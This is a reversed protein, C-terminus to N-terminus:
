FCTAGSSHKQRYLRGEEVSFVVDVVSSEIVVPDHSAILVTKGAMKLQVVIEIFEESLVKDLHATPEDAIIISPDNILARAIATRQTEGGSIQRVPFKARHELHLDAMLLQARVRQQKPPVGLPLLPLCINELVSMHDFLNFHQPVFGMNKQRFQTLFHDPMRSVKKGGITALGETPTFVAGLISLLTSKGSGSPGKFCVVEGRSVSLSVAALAVVESVLGKNYIKSVDKLVIDM